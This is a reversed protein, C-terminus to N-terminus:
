FWELTPVQNLVIKNTEYSYVALLLEHSYMITFCSLMILRKKGSTLFPIGVQKTTDLMLNRLWTVTWLLTLASIFSRPKGGGKGELPLIIM